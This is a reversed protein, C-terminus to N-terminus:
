GLTETHTPTYASTYYSAVCTETGTHLWIVWWIKLFQIQRNHFFTYISYTEAHWWFEHKSSVSILSFSPFLLAFIQVQSVCVCVCLNETLFPLLSSSENSVSVTLMQFSKWGKVGDGAGNRRWRVEPRRSRHRSPTLCMCWCVHASIPIHTNTQTHVHPHVCM